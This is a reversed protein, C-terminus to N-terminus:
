LITDETKLWKLGDIKSIILIDSEISVSEIESSTKQKVATLRILLDAFISILWEPLNEISYTTDILADLRFNKIGEEMDLYEKNQEKKIIELLIDSNSINEEKFDWKLNEIISNNADAVYKLIFEVFEDNVGTIFTYAEENIAFVKVIPKKSNAASDVIEYIMKGNNNFYIEIEFFSPYHNKLDFGALVIGTVDNQLDFSFIQWLIELCEDKDADEPIIDDFENDYNSYEKIFPCIDKKRREDIINFFGFEDIESILNYRFYKLRSSVYEDVSSSDTSKSLFNIFRDAIEEVTGIEKFDTGAKFEAILTEMPVDELDPNGNLM